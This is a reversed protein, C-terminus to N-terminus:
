RTLFFVVVPMFLDALPTEVMECIRLVSLPKAVQMAVSTARAVEFPAQPFAGKM